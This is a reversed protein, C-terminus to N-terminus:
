RQFIVSWPLEKLKTMNYKQEFGILTNITAREPRIKKDSIFMGKIIEIPKPVKVAHRRENVLIWNYVYDIPIASVIYSYVTKNESLLRELTEFITMWNLGYDMIQVNVLVDSMDNIVFLRFYRNLMDEVNIEDKLHLAVTFGKQSYRAVLVDVNDLDYILGNVLIALRNTMPMHSEVSSSSIYIAHGRKALQRLIYYMARRVSYKQYATFEDLVLIPPAGVVAAAFHVRTRVTSHMDGVFTGMEAHLELADIYNMVESKAYTEPVGRLIAILKLAEFVTMWPPLPNRDSCLAVQSAYKHPHRSLEWTSMAWLQGESPLKYGALLDCLNKRGHHILGSLSIVQGRGMGFYVNRITCSSTSARTVNVALLYEGFSKTCSNKNHISKYREIVNEKERQVGLTETEPAYKHSYIKRACCKHLTKASCLNKTKFIVCEMNYLFIKQIKSYAYAMNFQPSFSMFQLAYSWAHGYHIKAIITTEGFDEVQFYPSPAVLYIITVIISTMLVVLLFYLFTDCVFMTLWYRIPSFNETHCQMHRVLGHEKSPMLTIHLITLILVFQTLLPAQAVYTMWRTLDLALPDDTVQITADLVGTYHRLLAMFARALSRPAVACDYHLPSYLVRISLSGNQSKADIGYAFMRVYHQPADIARTVLYEKLSERSALATYGIADIEDATANTESLVYSNCVEESDPVSINMSTIGYRSSNETLDKVLAAAAATPTTPLRLILLSGLNARVKAGAVQAKLLIEPLADNDLSGRSFTLRLRYERGFQFFLYGPTGGFVLVKSDFLFVRDAYELKISAFCFKVITIYKKYRRPELLLAIAWCLQAQYYDDLRKVRKNKVETLDCEKLLRQVRIQSYETIYESSENWLCIQFM